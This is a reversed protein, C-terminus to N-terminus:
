LRKVIEVIELFTTYYLIGLSTLRFGFPKLRAKPGSTAVHIGAARSARELLRGVRAERRPPVRRSVERRGWVRPPPYARDVRPAAQM